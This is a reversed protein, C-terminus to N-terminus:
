LAEPEEEFREERFLGEKDRVLQNVKLEAEDLRKKCVRALEVGRGFLELARELPLNGQELQKVISELKEMAKELDFGQEARESNAM